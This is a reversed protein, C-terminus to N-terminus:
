RSVDIGSWEGDVDAVYAREGGRFAYLGFWLPGPGADDRVQSVSLSEVGTSRSFSRISLLNYIVSGAGERSRRGVVTNRPESVLNRACRQLLKM